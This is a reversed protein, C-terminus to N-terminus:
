QPYYSKILEVLDDAAAKVEDSLSETGLAVTNTQIGVFVVELQPLSDRILRAIVNLPITHTSLTTEPIAHEGILEVKGPEGGFKAADVVVMKAPAYDIVEDMINEPTFGADLVKLSPLSGLQLAVYPGVGDDGRFSNGVTVLVNRGEAPRLAQRIEVTLSNLM